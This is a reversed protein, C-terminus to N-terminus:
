GRLGNCFIGDAPSWNIWHTGNEKEMGARTGGTAPIRMLLELRRCGPQLDYADAIPAAANLDGSIDECFPCIRFASVM